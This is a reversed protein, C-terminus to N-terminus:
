DVQVEQACTWWELAAEALGKAEEMDVAQSIAQLTAVLKDNEQWVQACRLWLHENEDRWFNALRAQVVVSGAMAFAWCAVGMWQDRNERIADMDKWYLQMNLPVSM